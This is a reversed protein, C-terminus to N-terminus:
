IQIRRSYVVYTKVDCDQPVSFSKNRSGGCPSGRIRLLHQPPDSDLFSQSPAEAEERLERSIQIDNNGKTVNVEYPPSAGRLGYGLIFFCGGEKVKNKIDEFLTVKTVSQRDSIAMVANYKAAAAFDWNVVRPQDKSVVVCIHLPKPKLYPVQPRTSINCYIHVRHLCM